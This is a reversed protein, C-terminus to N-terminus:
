QNVIVILFRPFILDFFLIFFTEFTVKLNTNYPKEGCCNDPPLWTPNPRGNFPRKIELCSLDKESECCFRVEYDECKEDKKPNPM